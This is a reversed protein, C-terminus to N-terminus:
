TPSSGATPGVPAAGHFRTDEGRARDASRVEIHSLISNDKGRLMNVNYQPLIPTDPITTLFADLRQKFVSTKVNELNRIEPPMANFLQCGRVRLSASCITGIKHTATRSIQRVICVKGSRSLYKTGIGFNPVLNNIMKWIYIIRYRERRRELSYLKLYKLREWYNLHAISSIKSTFTRQVGEILQIDQKMWPSWLQSCYDLTPIVLSKWLTLMPLLDRTQFTRLIWGLKSRSSNAIANIHTRFTANNSMTVGLDRLSEKESINAGDNATYNYPPNSTNRHNYHLKEFKSSNFCMNNDIAWKYITELDSQLKERDDITSIGKLVRTDDAFCSVKSYKVNQNIDSILILFLLPGLVTGQPVGSIVPLESSLTNEVAVQQKRDHLFNHVWQAVKGIIGFNKLKHMLIGHDVKDFAKAFDLYIVDAQQNSELVALISDYHALLQSLCSRNSRFGHQNENMYNHDELFKTIKKVIIKEFIKIIHSTLAVPRYNKPQDRSGGKYIPTIIARKLEKPINGTAISASWLCYLPDGLEDACNKLLIAPFNDPGSASNNRVEKIADIINQKGFSISDLIPKTQSPSTFFESPNTIKHNQSPSSFVSNYQNNLAEAIDYSNSITSDNIIFPGIKSKIKSNRKAYAYFYKPNSKIAEVANTEQLTKENEHSAMLAKEIDEVNRKLTDINNANNESLIKKRLKNRKNMLIKRDRPIISKKAKRRQPAYKKCITLSKEVIINYMEEPTKARLVTHWQILSLEKKIEEWNVTKHFLNLKEFSTKAEQNAKETNIISKKDENDFLNCQISIINHDSITANAIEIKHIIEDNNIFLLDLINRERTSKDICQKLCHYNSFQILNNAQSQCTARGGQFVTTEWNIFPFNFDGILIIDPTPFNFNDLQQQLIQLADSFMQTPCDPPRYLTALLLHQTKFYIIQLEVYENSHSVLVSSNPIIDERIYNIIGGKKRNNARDTRCPVYNEIAIEQDTVYPKLHSETISIVWANDNHALEQLFKTKCKQKSTYLGNM